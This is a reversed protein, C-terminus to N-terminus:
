RRCNSRPEPSMLLLPAFDIGTKQEAAKVAEIQALHSPVRLLDAAQLWGTLVGAAEQEKTSLLKPQHDNHCQDINPILRVDGREVMTFGRVIQIARQTAVDSKLITALM